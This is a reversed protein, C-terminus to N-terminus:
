LNEFRKECDIKATGGPREEPTEPPTPAPTPPTNPRNKRHPWDITGLNVPKRAPHVRFENPTPMPANDITHQWGTIVNDARVESPELIVPFYTKIDLKASVERTKNEADYSTKLTKAPEYSLPFEVSVDIRQGLYSFSFYRTFSFLNLLEQVLVLSENFNALAYRLTVPMKLPIFRIEASYAGIRKSLASQSRDSGSTAVFREYDGRSPASIESQEIEVSDWDLICRPKTMYIYDEGTTEGWAFDYGNSEQYLYEKGTSFVFHRIGKGYLRVSRDLYNLLAKVVLAFFRTDRSNDDFIEIDWPHVFADNGSTSNNTHQM